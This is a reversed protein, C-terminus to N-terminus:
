IGVIIEMIGIDNWPAAFGVRVVGLLQDLDLFSMLTSRRGNMDKRAGSADDMIAGRLQQMQSEVIGARSVLNNSM